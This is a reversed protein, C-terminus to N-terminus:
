SAVNRWLNTDTGLVTFILVGTSSLAFVASGVVSEHVVADNPTAGTGGPEDKGSYYVKEHDFSFNLIISFSYLVAGLALTFALGVIKAKLAAFVTIYKSENSSVLAPDNQNDDDRSWSSFENEAEFITMQRRVFRENEHQDRREAMQMSPVRDSKSSRALFAKYFTKFSVNRKQIMVAGTLCTYALSIISLVAVPVVYAVFMLVRPQYVFCFMSQQEPDGFFLFCLFGILTFIQAAKIAFRLQVQMQLQEKATIQNSLPNKEEALPAFLKTESAIWISVCLGAFYIACLLSIGYIGVGHLVCWMGSITDTLVMVVAFLVVADLALLYGLFKVFLYNQQHMLAKSDNVPDVPLLRRKSAIYIVFTLATSGMLMAFASWASWLRM